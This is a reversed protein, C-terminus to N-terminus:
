GLYNIDTNVHHAVLLMVSRQRVSRAQFIRKLHETAWVYAHQVYLAEAEAVATKNNNKDALMYDCVAPRMGPAATVSHPDVMESVNLTPARTREKPATHSRVLLSSM